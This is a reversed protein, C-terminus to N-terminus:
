FTRPWSERGQTGRRKFAIGAAQEVHKSKRTVSRKLPWLLPPRTRGGRQAAARGPRMARILGDRRIRVLAHVVGREHGQKAM